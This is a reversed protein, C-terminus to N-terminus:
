KPVPRGKRPRLAQVERSLAEVAKQLETLREGLEEPTAPRERPAAKPTAKALAAPIPIGGRNFTTIRPAVPAERRAARGRLARPSPASREALATLVSAYNWTLDRAGQMFGTRRNMQESLSGDAFAHYQVRRLQRDGAMRLATLIGQFAADEKALSQGPRLCRFQEPDLFEFFPKNQESVQIQGRRAWENAARYCLEGLGATCLVWANGESSGDVGGYRDEPYRGIAVGLPEGDRGKKTQNITYSKDNAFTSALRAATALVREDTPAFFDDGTVHTHLVGLLVAADLGSAKYDLGGDRGLTALLIGDRPSWHEAVAKELASAQSSYWDAAGKDRLRAALRAGELLARRQALRTYFHHGSVEEWIDFCTKGWNHSVYELDQKIVSATPLTSDYLKTQVFAV